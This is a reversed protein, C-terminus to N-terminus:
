DATLSKSKREVFLSVASWEHDTDVDTASDAASGNPGGDATSSIPSSASSSPKSRAITTNRMCVQYM